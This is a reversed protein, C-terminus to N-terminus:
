KPSGGRQGEGGEEMNARESRGRNTLTEYGRVRGRARPGGGRRSESRHTDGTRAGRYPSGTKIPEKQKGEGERPRQGEGQQTLEEAIPCRGDGEGEEGEVRKRGGLHNTDKGVEEIGRGARDHGGSTASPLYNLEHICDNNRWDAKNSTKYSRCTRNAKKSKRRRERRKNNKNQKQKLNTM